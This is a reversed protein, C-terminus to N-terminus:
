EDTDGNPSDQKLVHAVGELRALRRDLRGHESQIRIITKEMRDVTVKLTNATASIKAISWVAAVVVAGMQILSSVNSFQDPPM